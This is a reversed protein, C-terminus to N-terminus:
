YELYKLYYINKKNQNISPYLYKKLKNNLIQGFYLAETNWTSMDM